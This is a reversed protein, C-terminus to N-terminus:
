LDKMLVHHVTYMQIKIRSILMFQSVATNKSRESHLFSCFLSYVSSQGLRVGVRDGTSLVPGRNGAATSLLSQM